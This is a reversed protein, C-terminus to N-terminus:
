GEQAATTKTDDVLEANPQARLLLPAQEETVKAKGGKVTLKFPEATEVRITVDGDPLDLNKVTPM